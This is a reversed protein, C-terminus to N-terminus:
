LAEEANIERRVADITRWLEVFGAPIATQGRETSQLRDVLRALDALQEPNDVLGLM